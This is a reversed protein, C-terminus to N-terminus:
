VKRRWWGIALGTILLINVWGGLSAKIVQQPCYRTGDENVTHGNGPAYFSGIDHDCYNCARVATPYKYGDSYPMMITIIHTNQNYLETALRHDEFLDGCGILLVGLFPLVRKLSNEKQQSFRWHIESFIETINTIAKVARPVAFFAVIMLTLAFYDM